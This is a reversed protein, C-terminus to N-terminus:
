VPTLRVRLWGPCGLLQQERGVLHKSRELTIEKRASRFFYNTPSTAVSRAVGKEKGVLASCMVWAMSPTSFSASRLTPAEITRTRLPVPATLRSGSMFKRKGGTKLDYTSKFRWTADEINELAADYERRGYDSEDLVPYAELRKMLGHYVHFADTIADDRYVRISFGDVHGVAWHAHSEFVVDPNESETFSRVADAMAAANSQDLLGSDRHHTYLIASDDPDDIERLRDWCCCSYRKWNGAAQSAAEELTMEGITGM